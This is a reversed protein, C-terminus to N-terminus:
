HVGTRTDWWMQKGWLNDVVQDDFPKCNASNLNRETAPYPSRFPPINHDAYQPARGPAIYLNDPIGTRRTHSWGEMGQKFMAVWQEYWIQKLTGDFKGAGNIYATADASSVENEEFSLSLATEYADKASLGGTNWGKSAAEAIIFYVEAVRMYPSFGGLDQGYKVSLKSYDSIPAAWALSGIVFGNFVPTATGASAGTPMFFAARRPDNKANM